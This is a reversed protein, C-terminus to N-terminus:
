SSFDKMIQRLTRVSNLFLIFYFKTRPSLEINMYTGWIIVELSLHVIFQVSLIEKLEQGTLILARIDALTNLLNLTHARLVEALHVWPKKGRDMFVARSCVTLIESFLCRMKLFLSILSYTFIWSVMLSGQGTAIDPFLRRVGLVSEFWIRSFCCLEKHGVTWYGWLVYKIEKKQRSKSSLDSVWIRDRESSVSHGWM